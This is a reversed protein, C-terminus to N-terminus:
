IWSSRKRSREGQEAKWKEIQWTTIDALPTDGFVSAFEEVIYKETGWGRKYGGAFEKYKEALKTNTPMTQCARTIEPFRETFANGRRSWLM